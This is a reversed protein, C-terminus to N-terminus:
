KKRESSSPIIKKKDLRCFTQRMEEIQSCRKRIKYHLADEQFEELCRGEIEQTGGQRSLDYTPDPFSKREHARGYLRM